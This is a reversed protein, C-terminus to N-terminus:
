SAGGFDDNSHLVTGVSPQIRAVKDWYPHGEPPEIGITWDIEKWEPEDAARRRAVVARYYVRQIWWHEAQWFSRVVFRITIHPLTPILALFQLALLLQAKM